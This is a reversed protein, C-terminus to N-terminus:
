SGTSPSHTVVSAKRQYRMNLLEVGLSFAMGFYVYGKNLHEGMGEAVLLVGIMVLFSLALIKVSPRREVFDGIAGAFAMMVLVAIIVSTAMISLDSATGVATIVSDLSFVLDVIMIQAIISFLTKRGTGAAASSGSGHHGEVKAYIETTAKAMLFLGGGLLVIDRASLDRGLVTVWPETLESLRALGALLFLRSLLAAALGLRRAKMQEERPLRGALISIFVINDIGLVIELGTLTLLSIWGDMSSLATMLNSIM